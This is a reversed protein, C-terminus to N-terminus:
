LFFFLAFIFYVYKHVLLVHLKICKGYIWLILQFL